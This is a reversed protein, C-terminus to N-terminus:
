CSVARAGVAFRCGMPHDPIQVQRKKNHNSNKLIDIAATYSIREFPNELVFKLKSILEM